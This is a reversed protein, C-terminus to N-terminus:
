DGNDGSGLGEIALGARSLIEREDEFGAKKLTETAEAIPFWCCDLVKGDHSDHNVSVEGGIHEMLFFYVIKFRTRAIGDVKESYFYHIDGIKNVIKADLGTEDHVERHATLALNEGPEKLGKPLEWRPGKSTEVSVLAVEVGADIRRYVVGGSAIVPGPGPRSKPGSKTKKGNKPPKPAM